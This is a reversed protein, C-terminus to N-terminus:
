EVAGPFKCAYEYQAALQRVFERILLLYVELGEASNLDIKLALCVAERPTRLDRSLYTLLEPGWGQWESQRAARVKIYDFVDTTKFACNAISELGSIQARKKDTLSKAAQRGLRQAQDYFGDARLAVERLIRMRLTTETM